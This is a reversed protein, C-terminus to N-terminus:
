TSSADAEKAVSNRATIPPHTGGCTQVIATIVDEMVLAASERVM